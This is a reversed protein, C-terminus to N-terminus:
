TTIWVGPLGAREQVWCGGAAPPAPRVARKPARGEEEGEDGTSPADEDEDDDEEAFLCPLAPCHM